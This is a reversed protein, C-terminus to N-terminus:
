KSYFEVRFEKDDSDLRYYMIPIYESKRTHGLISNRNSSTAISSLIYLAKRDWVEAKKSKEFTELAGGNNFLDV